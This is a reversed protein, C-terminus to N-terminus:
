PQQNEAISKLLKEGNQEDSDVVVSYVQSREFTTGDDLVGNISLNVNYLGPEKPMTLTKGFKAGLNNMSEESLKHIRGRGNVRCLAAAVRAKKFKRAPKDTFELNLNLPTRNRLHRHNGTLKTQLASDFWTYLLFANKNRSQMLIKWTGAVPRNVKLTFHTAGNFYEADSYTNDPMYSSGNPALINVTVQPDAAILDFLIANAGGEVPVTATNQSNIEGGRLLFNGPEDSTATSDAGAASSLPAAALSMASFSASYSRIQPEVYWWVKSGMRINDHNYSGTNIHTARPNHASTVTVLGDNSGYGSLYIGGFYLASFFPGWDTGGSTYYTITNNESRNDTISRFYSMYSTQLVYTGDDQQGLLAGLWSAYWSYSLDALQSGWHPTSLTFVKDVYPYAGYHVIASQTDIGGKSHCIMNVKPVGFYACIQQLQSSLVSGNLWMSGANGSADRFNVFATRYGYNYAYAYMDNNGYYTTSGWWNIANGHLGQVFVLVPKAPDFAPPVAGIYWDGEAGNPNANVLTPTPPATWASITSTNVAVCVLALIVLLFFLKRNKMFFIMGKMIYRM